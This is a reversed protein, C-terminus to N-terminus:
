SSRRPSVMVTIVGTIAVGFLMAAQLWSALSLEIWFPFM